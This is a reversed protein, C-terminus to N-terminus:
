DLANARCARSLETNKEFGFLICAANHRSHRRDETGYLLIDWVFRCCDFMHLMDLMWFCPLDQQLEFQTDFCLPRITGRDQQQTPTTDKPMIMSSLSKNHINLEIVGKHIWVSELGEITSFVYRSKVYWPIFGMSPRWSLKAECFAAASVLSAATSSSGAEPAWASRWTIWFPDFFCLYLSFLLFSQVKWLVSAFCTSPHRM